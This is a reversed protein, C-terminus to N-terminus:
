RRKRRDGSFGLIHPCFRRLYAPLWVQMNRSRIALWAVVGLAAATVALVLLAILIPQIM